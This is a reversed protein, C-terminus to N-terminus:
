SWRMGQCAYDFRNLEAAPLDEFASCVNVESKDTGVVM